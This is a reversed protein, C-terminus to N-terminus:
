PSHAVSILEQANEQSTKAGHGAAGQQDPLEDKQQGPLDQIEFHHLSWSSM